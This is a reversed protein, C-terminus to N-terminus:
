KASVGKAYFTMIDDLGATEVAANPYLSAVRGRNSILFETDFASDRRAIIDADPFSSADSKRCKLIGHEELLIDKQKSFVVNGCHIFTIYDAIKELDSTIHSSLLISHDEDSVFDWFLDLIESRVVPDLGSTPEDLILLKPHHSLATIIKVKALMGKSLQFLPKKLPLSFQKCSEYFYTKDWDPHTGSMIKDIDCIRLGTSFFGDDLVVGIERCLEKRDTNPDKGFVRCFGSDAHILGLLSKIITTKGAGNEGILGMVCGGPVQFSVHDLCFDDYRKCLDHVEIAHNM